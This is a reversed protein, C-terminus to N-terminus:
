DKYIMNWITKMDDSLIEFKEESLKFHNKLHNRLDEINSSTKLWRIFIDITINKEALIKLEEDTWMSQSVRLKDIKERIPYVIFNLISEVNEELDSTDLKKNFMKVVNLLVEKEEDKELYNLNFVRFRAQVAENLPKTWSFLRNDFPNITAVIHFDPHRRYQKDNVIITWNKDM